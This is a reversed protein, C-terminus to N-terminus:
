VTDLAEWSSAWPSSYHVNLLFPKRNGDGPDYNGQRGQRENQVYKQKLCLSLISLFVTHTSRALHCVQESFKQVAKGLLKLGNPFSTHMLYNGGLACLLSHQQETADVEKCGWLSCCM